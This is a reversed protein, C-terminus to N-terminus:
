GPLVAAEAGWCLKSELHALFSESGWRRSEHCAAETSHDCTQKSPQARPLRFRCSVTGVYIVLSNELACFLSSPLCPNHEKSGM